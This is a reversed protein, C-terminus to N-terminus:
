TTLSWFVRHISRSIVRCPTSSSWRAVSASIASFVGTVLATRAPVSIRVVLRRGIVSRITTMPASAAPILAAECALRIAPSATSITANSRPVYLEKAAQPM